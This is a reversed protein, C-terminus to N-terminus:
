VVVSLIAMLQVKLHLSLDVISKLIPSLPTEQVGGSLFLTLVAVLLWCGYMDSVYLM